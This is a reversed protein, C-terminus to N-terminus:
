SAMKPPAMGWLRLDVRRSWFRTRVRVIRLPLGAALGAIRPWVLQVTQGPELADAADADLVVSLDYFYRTPRWLTCLANALADIDSPEQLLTELPDRENAAQYAASIPSDILPDASTAGSATYGWESTLEARLEPTVSGAIDSDAHVAHNRRGAVRRRLNPAQDLSVLVDSAINRDDLVLAIDSPNPESWRRVAVTGTRTTWIGALLSDTIQRLLAAYTTPTTLYTALAAPATDQLASPSAVTDWDFSIGRNTQARHRLYELMAFAREIVQSDTTRMPGIPHCTVKGAPQNALTLGARDGEPEYYTWDIIQQSSVTFNDITADLETAGLVIQLQAQERVDITLSKAGTTSIPFVTDPNGGLRFTIQGATPVATVNFAIVYRRGALLSSTYHFIAAALQGSSQCRLANGNNIFRDNNAGFGTVRRWNFPMSIGAADNAWTTFAGGGAAGSTATTIPNHATYPDDPGAFRDGRDYAAVISTMGWSTPGSNDCDHAFYHRVAPTTDIRQPECWRPRGLVIPLPKGRLSANPLSSDWLWAQLPVDLRATPDALVIRLRRGDIVEIRDVVGASWPVFDARADGEYGSYLRFPADRWEWALWEDIGGDRNILTISGGRASGSNNWPSLGIERTFEVDSDGAIRGDYITSAPSEGADTRFGNSSLHVTTRAPATQSYIGPTAGDPVAYAFPSSGFNAVVSMSTGSPRMIGIKPSVDLPLTIPDMNHIPVTIWVGNNKSLSYTRADLDLLHRVVDNSALSGLVGQIYGRVRINGDRLVGVSIVPVETDFGPPNDFPAGRGIGIAVNASGTYQIQTEWYWRGLRMPTTGLVCAWNSAHVTSKSATLNGGSLAIDAHKDTPSWTAYVPNAPICPEFEALLIRMRDTV